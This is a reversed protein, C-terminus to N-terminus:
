RRAVAELIRFSSATSLVRDLAFGAAALLTRFQDITRERGGPALILMQLDLRPTLVAASGVEMHEPLVQEIVLLTAGAGMAERCRSLITTAREDDWDHLIYKLLYADAGSPVSRFFDGGVVKCRDIAAAAALAPAAGAVVHPLDFLIGHAAPNAALIGALLSGDSGGIDAITQFSSFDYAAVIPGTTSRAMAAFSADHIAGAEAHREWYEFNSMGFIHDFAPEGTQVSYLLEGWSRWFWEGALFLVRDRISGPVDACLSAGLPTLSIRRDPEEVVVGLAALMRVLRALSPAHTDTAAALDDIDRPGTGLIDAVRLQVAVRIVQAYPYNAILDFLATPPSSPANTM